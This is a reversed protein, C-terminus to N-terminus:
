IGKLAKDEDLHFGNSLKKMFEEDLHNNTTECPKSLVDSLGVKMFSEQLAEAFKGLDDTSFINKQEM